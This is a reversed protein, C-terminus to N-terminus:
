KIGISHMQVHKGIEDDRVSRHDRSSFKGTKGLKKETLWLRLLILYKVILFVIVAAVLIGVIYAGVIGISLYNTTNVVTLIM